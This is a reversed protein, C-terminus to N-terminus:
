VSRAAGNGRSRRRLKAYQEDTLNVWVSGKNWARVCHDFDDIDDPNCRIVFARLAEFSPLDIYGSISTRCDAEMFSCNWGDYQQFNMLARPM